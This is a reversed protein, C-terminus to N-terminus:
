HEVRLDRGTMEDPKAIGLIGLITPAIDELAGDTRLQTGNAHEDVLHFPVPNKTHSNNIDGNYLDIMEECNGHDSTILAIGNMERIKQLVGGLCTDIFQVAEITKNLNGGHAIIDAAALNVIFVDNEGAELGRLLKDTVKFCGMEPQTEYASLKPSPILIRQECDHESEIGGNFFYTVHAYKETETLRCNLVGEKAFIQALVNAEEELPFAVPLGFTRDYETLCVTHINPKAISSDENDEKVSLSKVLQRMRDSRHNFFIVTDGDQITAVPIGPKEELVIPQIFEDNIGRLFSGRIASVADFGREGEAHVLMTFVRATREWNQDKDMGYYRGCISAIKGLGIDALKIELAEIYIDATRPLVDRGDLIPHVFVKKLGFSKAMRLIAFLHEKSSHVDGDSLLGILHLSTNNAKARKMAEALVQNEFFAGSKIAKGIKSVETQVIRGAGINMHGVESSGSVGDPLGVRAGSAELLTKPYKTCIEDYYPTYALAIANGERRPSYGWGDIIVLALPRKRGDNM